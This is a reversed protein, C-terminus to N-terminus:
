IRLSSECSNSIILPQLPQSQEGWGASAAAALASRSSAAPGPSRPPSCPSGPGQCRIDWGCSLKEWGCSLKEWRRHAASLISTRAFRTLRPWHCSYHYFDYIIFITAASILRPARAPPSRQRPLGASSEACGPADRRKGPLRPVSVGGAM